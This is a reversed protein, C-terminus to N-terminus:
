IRGPIIIHIFEGLINKILREKKKENQLRVGEREDQIHKNSIARCNREIPQTMQSNVLETADDKVDKSVHIM